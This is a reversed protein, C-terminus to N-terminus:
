HKPPKGKSKILCQQEKNNQQHYVSMHPKRYLQLKLETLDEVKSKSIFKTLSFSVQYPGVLPKRSTVRPSMHGGQSHDKSNDVTSGMTYFAQTLM